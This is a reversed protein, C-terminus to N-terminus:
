KNASIVVKNEKVEPIPKEEVKKIPQEPAAEMPKGSM